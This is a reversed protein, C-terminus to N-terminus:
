FWTLAVMLSHGIVEPPLQKWSEPNGSRLLRAAEVWGGLDAAEARLQGVEAAEKVLSDMQKTVQSSAKKIQRIGQDTVAQIAAAINNREQTLETVQRELGSSEIQLEDARDKRAMALAEISGYRDLLKSLEEPTVGTQGLIRKWNALDNGKVGQDLLEETVKIAEVRAKSRIEASKAEAEWRAADAQATAARSEARTAELDLTIITEYREVTKFFQAVGQEPPAGQSAAIQALLDGLRDLEAEGFGRLSLKGFRDLIGQVESLKTESELRQQGLDQVNAELERLEGGLVTVADRLQQLHAEAEASEKLIYELADRTQSTADALASYMPGKSGRYRQFIEQVRSPDDVASLLERTITEKLTM